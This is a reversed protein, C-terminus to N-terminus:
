RQGRICVTRICTLCYTRLHICLLDLQYTLHPTIAPHTINVQFMPFIFLQLPTAARFVDEYRTCITPQVSNVQLVPLVQLGNQRRPRHRRSNIAVRIRAVAPVPNPVVATRSATRIPTKRAAVKLRCCLRIFHINCLM